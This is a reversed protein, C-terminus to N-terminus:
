VDFIIRAKWGTKIKEVKVLHYTVAKIETKLMHKKKDFPEVIVNATLRKNSLNLISCNYFVLAEGNFLYLLERLYNILLDATDAGEISIEKQRGKAQAQRHLDFLIDTLACAANAFLEKRTQGYIEVGIDATHDFFTYSLMVTNYDIIGADVLLRTIECPRFSAVVM